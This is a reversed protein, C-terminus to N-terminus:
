ARKGISGKIHTSWISSYRRTTSPSLDQWGNLQWAAMADNITTAPGFPGTSDSPVVAPLDSQLTVMKALARETARQTGRFLQSRHRVRGSTDRGLFVRLEFANTGKDPRKRISGAM